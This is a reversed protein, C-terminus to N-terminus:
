LRRTSSFAGGPKIRLFELVQDTRRRCHESLVKLMLGPGLPLASHTIARFDMTGIQAAHAPKGEVANRAQDPHHFGHMAVDGPM